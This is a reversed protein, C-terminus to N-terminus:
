SWAAVVDVLGSAFDGEPLYSVKWTPQGRDTEGLVM